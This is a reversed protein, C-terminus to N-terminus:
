GQSKESILMRYLPPIVIVSSLYGSLVGTVLTVGVSFLMPHRAFLLAGAGILTTLAAFTVARFTGTRCKYKTEYAVFMGYDSVDGLVILFAIIISMNVALGALPIVGAITIISTVVPALAIISLRINKLLLFTIIVTLVVAAFSLYILEAGLAHSVTNSFKKRSVIFAGPHDNSVASLATIYKEEDPFFSLIQYGGEKEVVYQEKLRDFFSLGKPEVALDGSSRLLNFFPQFAEQSFDYAKGYDALMNKTKSETEPSWYEQWRLLNAKRTVLGTWVSAFSSIKDRGIKKVSVEYIDTNNQYAGELTTGSAVLIAPMVKGGWVRHFEEETSKVEPGVADFQAIDNNFTIKTGSIFMLALVAVWSIVCLADRLKFDPPLIDEPPAFGPPPSKEKTFFHPLIFISFILCLVISLISFFALQHYGKVSSFFFVVFSIITTLAGHMVPKIVRKITESSGGAKKVAVYVFIGYDIAIGSIVTGMGIVSYSLDKFVFYAVNISVAVAAFPALFIMVARLDRFYFIFLLLFALSAIVSTLWVDKKIVDENSVTHVHGAIIDASVFAPLQKFAGQLYTILERAGFGDTLVVPTKVILMAHRGDRSIFHGNNIVVEYGLSMSLNEIDRLIGSFIGLPDARLFPTLFSGGPSLSQRHIFKLREKVGDPTIQSGIKSLVDAGSLQPAFKLFDVMESAIDGTSVISVVQKILPSSNLSAALQDAALILDQTTRSEDNLNLSIVLKDSFNAERLFRMTNQVAAKQPLMVEINNNFKVFKLGILSAVILVVLLGIVVGKRTQVLDHIRSLHDGSM